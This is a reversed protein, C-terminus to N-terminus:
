RPLSDQASADSRATDESPTGQEGPTGPYLTGPVVIYITQHAATQQRQPEGSEPEPTTPAAVHIAIVDEATYDADQLTRQVSQLMEDNQSLAQRFADIGQRHKEQIQDAEQESRLIDGIGVFTVAKVGRQQRLQEIVQDPHTLSSELDGKTMALEQAGAAGSPGLTLALAIAASALGATAREMMDTTM